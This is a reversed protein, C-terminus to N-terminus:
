KLLATQCKRQYTPHTAMFLDCPPGALWPSTLDSVKNDRNNAHVSATPSQMHAALTSVPGRLTHTQTKDPLKIASDM